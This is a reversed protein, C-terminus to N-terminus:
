FGEGGAGGCGTAPPRRCLAVVAAPPSAPAAATACPPSPRRAPSRQRGRRRVQARQLARPLWSAVLGSTEACAATTGELQLQLSALLEGALCLLPGRCCRPPRLVRAAPWGRRGVARTRAVGGRAMCLEGLVRTQKRGVRAVGHVHRARRRRSGMRKRTPLLWWVRDRVKLCLGALCSGWAVRQCGAAARLKTPAKRPERSTAVAVAMRATSKRAKGLRSAFVSVYPVPPLEAPGGMPPRRAQTRAHRGAVYSAVYCRLICTPHVYCRLTRTAARRWLAGPLCRLCLVAPARRRQEEKLGVPSRATGQGQGPGASALTGRGM